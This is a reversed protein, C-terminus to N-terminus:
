LEKKLIGRTSLKISEQQAFKSVSLESQSLKKLIAEKFGKSYKQFDAFLPIIDNVDGLVEKADELTQYKSKLLDPFTAYCHL